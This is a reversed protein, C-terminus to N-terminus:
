EDIYKCHTNLYLIFIYKVIIFIIIEYLGTYFDTTFVVHAVDHLM